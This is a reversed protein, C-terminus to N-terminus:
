SIEDGRGNCFSYLIDQSSHRLATMLSGPHELNTQNKDLNTQIKIHESNKQIQRIKKELNTQITEFHTLRSRTRFKTQIQGFKTQIKGRFKEQLNERFKVYIDDLKM